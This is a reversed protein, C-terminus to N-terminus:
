RNFDLTLEAFSHTLLSATQPVPDTSGLGLNPFRDVVVEVLAEAESKAVAIGLCHHIGMGMSLQQRLNKRSLDFKEPNPFTAPDHNAAGFFLAVWDGAKIEKSGVKVDRTAVRFLRQPPGTHRLTEDIFPTVLTKDARLSAM